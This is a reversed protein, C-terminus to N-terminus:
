EVSCYRSAKPSQSLGQHDLQMAKDMFRRFRCDHFFIDTLANAVNFGYIVISRNEPRIKLITSGFNAQASM